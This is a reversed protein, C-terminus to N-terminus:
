EFTSSCDSLVIPAGSVQLLKAYGATGNVVRITITQGGIQLHRTRVTPVSHTNQSQFDDDSADSANGRRATAASSTMHELKDAANRSETESKGKSGVRSCGTKKAGAHPEPEQLVVSASSKGTEPAANQRARYSQGLRSYKRKRCRPATTDQFDDSSSSDDLPM